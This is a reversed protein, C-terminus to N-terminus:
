NRGGTACRSASRRRCGRIPSSLGSPRCRRGWPSLCRPSLIRRARYATGASSCFASFPRNSSFAFVAEAALPAGFIDGVFRSYNAWNTGFQFEMTLGTAVGIAFTIAFLHLWFKALQRFADDGTRLYKWMIWVIFWALGITLPPFIFHFGVTLAFQLRSLLVADL